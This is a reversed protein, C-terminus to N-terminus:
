VIVLVDGCTFSYISHYAAISLRGRGGDGKGVGRM